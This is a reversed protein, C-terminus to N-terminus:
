CLTAEELNRWVDAVAGVLVAQGRAGHACLERSRAELCQGQRVLPDDEVRRGGREAADHADGGVAIRLAHALRLGGAARDLRHVRLGLLDDPRHVLLLVGGDVMRRRVCLAILENLTWRETIECSRLSCWSRWSAEIRENLAEDETKAQLVFGTGVVNREMAGLIAEMVDSNRELDRARARIVDRGAQNTAEGTRNTREWGASRPSADEATYASRALLRWAERRYALRPALPLLMRNLLSMRERM